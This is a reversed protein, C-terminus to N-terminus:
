ELGYVQRPALAQTYQAIAAKRTLFCLHCEDIYGPEAHYDSILRLDPLWRWRRLAETVADFTSGTTSAASSYM